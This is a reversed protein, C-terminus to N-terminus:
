FRYQSSPSSHRLRRLQSKPQGVPQNINAHAVRDNRSHQVHARILGHQKGQALLSCLYHKPLPTRHWSVLVEAFGTLFFELFDYGKVLVFFAPNDARLATALLHMLHCRSKRGYCCLLALTYCGGGGVGSGSCLLLGGLEEKQGAPTIILVIESRLKPM